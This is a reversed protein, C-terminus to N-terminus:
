GAYLSTFVAYTSQSFQMSTTKSVMMVVTFKSVAEVPVDNGAQFPQIM